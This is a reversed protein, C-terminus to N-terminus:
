SEAKSLAFGVGFNRYQAAYGGCLTCRHASYLPFRGEDVRRMFLGRGGVDECSALRCCVYLFVCYYDRYAWLYTLLLAVSASVLGTVFLKKHVQKM